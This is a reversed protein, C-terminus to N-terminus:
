LSCHENTAPVKKRTKVPGKGAAVNDGHSKKRRKERGFLLQPQLTAEDSGVPAAKRKAPTSAIESATSSITPAGPEPSEDKEDDDGFYNKLTRLGDSLWNKSM